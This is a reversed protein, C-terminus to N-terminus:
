KICCTSWQLLLGLATNLNLFQIQVPPCVLFFMRFYLCMIWPVLHTLFCWAPFRLLKTCDFSTGCWFTIWPWTFFHPSRCVPLLWHLIKLLSQSQPLSFSSPYSSLQLYRHYVEGSSGWCSPPQLTRLSQYSPELNQLPLFSVFRFLFSRSLSGTISDGPVFVCVYKLPLSQVKHNLARFSLNSCESCLVM